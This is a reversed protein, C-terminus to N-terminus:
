ACAVLLLQGLPYFVWIWEDYYAIKKPGIAGCLLIADSVYFSLAGAVSIWGGTNEAALASGFVMTCNLCILAAYLLIGFLLPYNRDEKPNRRHCLVLGIVALVFLGGGFVACFPSLGGFHQAKRYFCFAYAMHAFAFVTGGFVLPDGKWLKGFLSAPTLMVDGLFSLGMAVFCWWKWPSAPCLLALLLALVVFALSMLMQWSMGLVRYKQNIRRYGELFRNM